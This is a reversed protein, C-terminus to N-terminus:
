SSGAGSRSTVSCDHGEPCPLTIAQKLGRTNGFLSPQYRKM